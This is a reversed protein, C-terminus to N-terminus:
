KIALKNRPPLFSKVWLAYADRKEAEDKFPRFSVTVTIQQRKSEQTKKM